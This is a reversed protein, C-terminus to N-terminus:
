PAHNPKIMVNADYLAPQTDRMSDSVYTMPMGLGKKSNRERSWVHNQMMQATLITQGQTYLKNELKDNLAKINSFDSLLKSKENQFDLKIANM